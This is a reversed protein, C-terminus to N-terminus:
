PIAGDPIGLPPIEPPDGSLDYGLPFCSVVGCWAALADDLDLAVSPASDARWSYHTGLAAERNLHRILEDDGQLAEADLLGREQRERPTFSSTLEARRERGSPITTMGRVSFM